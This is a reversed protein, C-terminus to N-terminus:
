LVFDITGNQAVHRIRHVHWSVPNSRPLDPRWWNYCGIRAKRGTSNPGVSALQRLAAFGCAFDAFQTGYRNILWELELCGEKFFLSHSELCSTEPDGDFNVRVFNESDLEDDLGDNVEVLELASV